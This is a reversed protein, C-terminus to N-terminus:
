KMKVSVQGIRIRDDVGLAVRILFTTTATVLDPPTSGSVTHCGTGATLGVSEDLAVTCANPTSMSCLRIQFISAVQGDDEDSISYCVTVSDVEGNPLSLPVWFWQSAGMGVNVDTEIAVGTLPDTPTLYIIPPTAASAGSVGGNLPSFFFEAGTSLVGEENASILRSGVGKLDGVIVKGSPKLMLISDSTNQSLDSNSSILLGEENINSIEFETGVGFNTMNTFKLASTDSEFSTSRIKSVAYGVGEVTNISHSPDESGQALLELSSFILFVYFISAGFSYKM